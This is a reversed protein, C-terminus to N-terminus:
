DHSYWERNSSSWTYTNHGITFFSLNYNLSDTKEFSYHNLDLSLYYNPLQEIFVPRLESLKNPLQKYKIRYQEIALVIKNGNNMANDRQLVIGKDVIIRTPLVTLIFGLSFILM